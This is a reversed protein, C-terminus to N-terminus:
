KVLTEMCHPHHLVGLLPTPRPGRSRAFAAGGPISGLVGLNWAGPRFWQAWFPKATVQRRGVGRFPLATSSM